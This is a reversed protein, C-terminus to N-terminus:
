EDHQFSEIVEMPVRYSIGRRDRCCRVMERKELVGIDNMYRILRTTRCGVYQGFGGLTISSDDSNDIFLAMMVCQEKTLDLKASMYRNRMGQYRWVTGDMMRITDDDIMGSLTHRKISHPQQGQRFLLM